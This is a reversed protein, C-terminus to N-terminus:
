SSLLLEEELYRFYKWHAWVRIDQACVCMCVCVRVCLICKKDKDGNWVWRDPTSGGM